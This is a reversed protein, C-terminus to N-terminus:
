VEKPPDNTMAGKQARVGSIFEIACETALRSLSKAGNVSQQGSGIVAGTVIRGFHYAQGALWSRDPKKM